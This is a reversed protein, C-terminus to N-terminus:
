LQAGAYQFVNDWVDDILEKAEDLPLVQCAGGDGIKLLAVKRGRVPARFTTLNELTKRIDFDIQADLMEEMWQEIHDDLQTDTMVREATLLHYYVLIIEKCEEEEAADILTYLVGQNSVLNKFFLTDSVEKLFMLQKKKYNTYQRAAFGGLAMGASLAAVLAPFVNQTEESEVDVLGSAADAGLTLLLIIGIIVLISPLVKLLVPVAGAIAPGFTLIRDKWNMRVKVTPFLLELDFRPINKYLYLYMKGPQFQLDEIKEGKTEFYAADKFKLLLAVRELNDVVREKKWFMLHKVSVTMFNDGRYYCAIHEYDDFDVATKLPILSEMEFARQLDNQSLKQYNARQLVEEFGQVLRQQMAEQEAGDPTTRMRTDTDPDFPVYCDKMTELTQQSKFHYYASLIECFERFKQRDAEPLKGDELCIAILDSRRYPIFAERDGHVAM